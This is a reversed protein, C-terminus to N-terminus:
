LLAREIARRSPRSRSTRASAIRRSQRDRLLFKFRRFPNRFIDIIITIHKHVVRTLRNHRRRRRREDDRHCSPGCPNCMNGALSIILTKFVYHM